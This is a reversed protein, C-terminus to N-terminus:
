SPLAPGPELRRTTGVEPSGTKVHLHIVAALSHPLVSTRGQTREPSRRIADSEASHLSSSPSLLFHPHQQLIAHPWPTEM